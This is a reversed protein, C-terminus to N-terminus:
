RAAWLGEHFTKAEAEAAVLYKAYRGKRGEDNVKAWGDRVLEFQILKGRLWLYQVRCANRSIPHKSDDDEFYVESTGRGTMIELDQRAGSYGRDSLNPVDVGFLRIWRPQDRYYESHIRMENAGRLGDLLWPLGLDPRKPPSVLNFSLTCVLLSHLM